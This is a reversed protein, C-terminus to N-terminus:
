AQAAKLQILNGADDFGQTLKGSALADFVWKKIQEYESIGFPAPEEYWKAEDFGKGPKDFQFADRASLEVLRQYAAVMFSSAAFPEEAYRECCAALWFEILKPRNEVALWEPAEPDPLQFSTPTTPEMKAQTTLDSTEVAQRPLPVRSLDLEGKFAQQSLAGYLTELDTLSQQYRSKIGEVKVAIAAFENQIGIPPYFFPIDEIQNTSVNPQLGPPCLGEVTNRFFETYCYQLFFRRNIQQQDILFRAVRQNLLCPLDENRVTATKVVNLSKIVPRTLAILLDGEQLAFKKYVDIFSDPVYSVDDWTLDEFHVNAIKVLKISGSSAIDKSKFAFGGQVHISRGIRDIVWGKENRVPDGFMELFVSKLLDDLQQLHLKRQAILGEVKSLLYAIRIQDDLPPLPIPHSDFDGKVVHKMTSGHAYKTLDRITKRLALKFYSKDIRLPNFEVKFIHQNLFSDERDWEFVDITASWSVLIDGKQVLYKRPVDKMTRNFPKSSDTLNQIRVIPYGDAVWDEPKFPFGNIFNAVSSINAEPYTM